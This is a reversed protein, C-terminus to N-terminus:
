APVVCAVSWAHPDGSLFTFSECLRFDVISPGLDERKHVAFIVNSSQGFGWRYARSVMGKAFIRPGDLCGTRNGYERALIGGNLTDQISRRIRGKQRLNEKEVAQTRQEELKRRKVTESSYASQGSSASDAQIKFYKGKEKDALVNIKPSFLYPDQLVM